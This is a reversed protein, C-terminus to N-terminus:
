RRCGHQSGLLVALSIAIGAMLPTTRARKM